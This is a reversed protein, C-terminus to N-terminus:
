FIDIGFSQLWPVYCILWSFYCHTISMKSKTVVPLMRTECIRRIEDANLDTKSQSFLPHKDYSQPPDEGKRTKMYLMTYYPYVNM